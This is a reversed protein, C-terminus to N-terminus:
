RMAKKICLAVRLAGCALPQILKKQPKPIRTFAKAMLALLEGHKCAAEPLGLIRADLAQAM